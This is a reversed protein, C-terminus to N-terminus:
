KKFVVGRPNVPLTAQQSRIEYNLFYWCHRVRNAGDGNAKEGDYVRTTKLDTEVDGDVFPFCDSYQAGNQYSQYLMVLDWCFECFEFDRVCLLYYGTAPAKFALQSDFTNFADNNELLLDLVPYSWVELVSDLCSGMDAADIDAYLFQDKRLYILYCQYCDDDNSLDGYAVVAGPLRNVGLPAGGEQATATGQPGALCCFMTILFVSMWIRKRM